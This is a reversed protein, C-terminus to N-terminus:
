VSENMLKPKLERKRSKYYVVIEDCRCGDYYYVGLTHSAHLNETWNLLLTPRARGLVVPKRIVSLKSPTGMMDVDCEGM